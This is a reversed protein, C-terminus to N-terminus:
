IERRTQPAGRENASFRFAAMANLIPSLVNSFIGSRYHQQDMIQDTYTQLEKDM